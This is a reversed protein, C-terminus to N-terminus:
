RRAGDMESNSLEVGLPRLADRNSNSQEDSATPAPVPARHQLGVSCISPCTPRSDWPSDGGGDM